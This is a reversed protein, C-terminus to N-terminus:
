ERGKQSISVSDRQNNPKLAVNFWFTNTDGDIAKDITYNENQNGLTYPSQYLVELQATTLGKENKLIDEEKNKELSLFYTHYLRDVAAQELLTGDRDCFLYATEETLQEMAEAQNDPEFSYSKLVLGDEGKRIEELEVIRRNLADIEKKMEELHGQYITDYNEAAMEITNQEPFLHSLDLLVQSYFRNLPDATIKIGIDAMETVPQEKEALELILREFEKESLNNVEFYEQSKSITERIKAADAKPVVKLYDNLYSM